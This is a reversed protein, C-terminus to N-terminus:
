LGIRRIEKATTFDDRTEGLLSTARAVEGFCEFLFSVQRTVLPTGFAPAVTTKLRVRMAQSFTLDPVELRGAGDVHAEYTDTSAFPMGYLQGNTATGTSTWTRGPEVPFRYLAVPSGYVMLTTGESPHEQASATGLLWLAETDHRYVADVSGGPDLPVVFADAPFKSAFWHGEVPVASFKAVPAPEKEERWDWVRHGAADVSGAVDIGGSTVLYGVTIGFAPTLEAPEVRGDLNPECAPRAPLGAKHEPRPTVTGDGCAAAIAALFATAARM